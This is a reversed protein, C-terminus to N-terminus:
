TRGGQRHGRASFTVLRELTKIINTYYYRALLGSPNFEYVEVLSKDEAVQFDKKDLIEFTIKRIGRAAILQPNFSHMPEFASEASPVLVQASANWAFFILISFRKM